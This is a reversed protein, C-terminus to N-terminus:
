KSTDYQYIIYKQNKQCQYPITTHSLPIGVKSKWTRLGSCTKIGRRSATAQGLPLRAGRESWLAREMGLKARQLRGPFPHPTAHQPQSGALLASLLHARQQGVIVIMNASRHAADGSLKKKPGVLSNSRVDAQRSRTRRFTARRRLHACQVPRMAQQYLTCAHLFALM